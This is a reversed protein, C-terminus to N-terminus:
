HGIFPATSLLLSHRIGRALMCVHQVVGAAEPRVTDAVAIAGVLVLDVAIFMVTHTILKGDSIDTLSFVSSTKGDNQFSSAFSDITLKESGISQCATSGLTEKMHTTNGVIVSKGEVVCQLGRGQIHTLIDVIM